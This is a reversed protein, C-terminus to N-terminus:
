SKDDDTKHHLMNSIVRKILPKKKSSDAPVNLKSSHIYDQHPYIFIVSLEAHYKLLKQPIIDMASHFSISDKRAKVFLILDNVKMKGALVLFDDWDDFHNINVEIAQKTKKLESNIQQALDEEAFIEITAAIQKAFGKITQIWEYFGSELQANNPVVLFIRKFTNCPHMIKSVIIMQGSKMLIKGLVSDYFTEASLQKSDWGIIVKNISLEKVARIIGSAVDHDVRTVPEVTMETSSGIEVAQQLVSQGKKIKKETHENDEVVSLPYIPDKAARNKFLVALHILSDITKPNAIPVLIRDHVAQSHDSEKESEAIQTGASQTIMSATLSTLLIIIVTGNLVSIDVLELNYGVMIVAITAAARAGTLGFILNREAFSYKYIKQTIYAALYKTGAAIAFFVLVFVAVSWGKFLGGVDVMMGVGILFFPIFLTNGIFVVRNMLPSVHPIYPNLAIGALFAGLIPEIGAFEALVSTVLVITLIFIYQSSGETTVNKFFWRTLLPVGKLVVLSFVLISLVLFLRSYMDADDKVSGSIFALILLVATDVIITAGFSITSARSKAIGLNNVIPYAILTHSAIASAILLSSIATMDFLFYATLFSAGLPLLFSLSGLLISKNKNKKLDIIDVELGVLFMLYILGITGFLEIAEGRELIHFGHPGILVGAVILGVISPM